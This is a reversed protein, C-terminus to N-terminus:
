REVEIEVKAKFCVTLKDDYVKILEIYKRVMSEDYELLNENRNRGIYETYYQVQMEYSGVQEDSDTSVQYYAEVKLKPKNEEKSIRNM